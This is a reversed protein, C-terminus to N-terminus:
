GTASVDVQCCVVSVLSLCGHGLHSEFGCDWAKSRAAVPIPKAITVGRFYIAHKWGVWECRGGDRLKGELVNGINGELPGTLSITQISNTIVKARSLV